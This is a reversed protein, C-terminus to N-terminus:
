ITTVYVGIPMAAGGAHMLSCQCNTTTNAPVTFDVPNVVEQPSKIALAPIGRTTGSTNRFAGAYTGGRPNLRVRITKSSSTNNNVPITLNYKVGFHGKNEIADGSNYSASTTFKNDPSSGGASVNYFGINGVTYTPTLADLESFSWSGRPHNAESDPEVPDSTITRLNTGTNRSMVTRLKYYLNGSGSSRSVTFEFIAGMLRNTQYTAESIVGASNAVVTADVPTLTDMTGGLCAKSTCLGVSLYDSAAYGIEKKGNSVQISNSTSLNQLTLGLKVSAGTENLHWLFVRHTISTSSTNVQDHWLTASNYFGLDFREPNDSIMLRRTGTQNASAVNVPTGTITMTGKTLNTQTCTM